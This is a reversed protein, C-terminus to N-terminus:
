KVPKPIEKELLGDKGYYCIFYKKVGGRIVSKYSVVKLKYVNSLSDCKYNIDREWKNSNNNRSKNTQGFCLTSLLLMTFYNLYTKM